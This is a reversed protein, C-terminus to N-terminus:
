DAIKIGSLQSGLSYLEQQWDERQSDDSTKTQKLRYNFHLGSV